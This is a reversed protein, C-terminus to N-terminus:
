FTLKLSGIGSFSLLFFVVFCCSSETIVFQFIVSIYSKRQHGFIYELLYKLDSALIM